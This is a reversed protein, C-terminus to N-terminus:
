RYNELAKAETQPIWASKCDGYAHHNDPHATACHSKVTAYNGRAAPDARLAYRFALRRTVEASSEVFCHALRFRNGTNPDDMRVCRRGPFGADRWCLIEANAEDPWNPNAPGLLSM